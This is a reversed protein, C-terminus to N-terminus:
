RGFTSPQDKWNTRYPDLFSDSNWPQNIVRLRSMFAPAWMKMLAEIQAPEDEFYADPALKSIATLKHESGSISPDTRLLINELAIFPYHIRLWEITVDRASPARSTAVVIGIGSEAWSSLIDQADSIPKAIEYHHNSFLWALIEPVTLTTLVSLQEVPWNWNNWDQKSYQTDYEHNIAAVIGPTVDGLVGDLDCIVLPRKENPIM